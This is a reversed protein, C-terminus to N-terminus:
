ILVIDQQKKIIKASYIKENFILLIKQKWNRHHGALYLYHCSKETHKQHYIQRVLQSLAATNQYSGILTNTKLAKILSQLIINTKKIVIVVYNELSVRAIKSKLAFRQNWKRSKRKPRWRLPNISMFNKLQNKSM